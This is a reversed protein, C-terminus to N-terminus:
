TDTQVEDWQDDGTLWEFAYHRQFLVPYILDGPLTSERIAPRAYCHLNYTRDNEALIEGPLRLRASSVFPEISEGRGPMIDDVLSGTDCTQTPLGLSHVKNIAWLLAWQAEQRWRAESLEDDTSATSKMLTQEAPSAYQWISQEILWEAIPEPDVGYGTAAIAHLIITRIAIEQSTRPTPEDYDAIAPLSDAVDIGHSAAWQRTKIM